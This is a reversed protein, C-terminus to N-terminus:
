PLGVMHPPLGIVALIEARSFRRTSFFDVEDSSPWSISDALDLWSLHEYRITRPNSRFGGRDVRQAWAAVYRRM